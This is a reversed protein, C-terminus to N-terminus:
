RQASFRIDKFSIQKGLKKSLVEAIEKESMTELQVAQMGKTSTPMAADASEGASFYITKNNFDLVLAVVGPILGFIFGCCDLILIAPDIKDSATKGIRESRFLTGCGTFVLACVATLFLATIKKFM